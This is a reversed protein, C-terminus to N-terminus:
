RSCRPCALLLHVHALVRCGAAPTPLSVEAEVLLNRQVAPNTSALLKKTGLDFRDM